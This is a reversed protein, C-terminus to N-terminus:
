IINAIIVSHPLLETYLSQARFFHRGTCLLLVCVFRSALDLWLLESLDAGSTYQAAVRSTQRVKQATLIGSCFDGNQGKKREKKKM